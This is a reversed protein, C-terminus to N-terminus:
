RFACAAGTRAHEKLLSPLLSAVAESSLLTLTHSIEDQRCSLSNACTPLTNSTCKVASEELTSEALAKAVHVSQSAAACPGSLAGSRSNLVPLPDHKEHASIPSSLYTAM